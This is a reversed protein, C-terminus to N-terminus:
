KSEYIGITICNYYVRFSFYGLRASDITAYYGLIVKDDILSNIKYNVTNKNLRVKKAIESNSQRANRDLELLIKRAKLDLNIM